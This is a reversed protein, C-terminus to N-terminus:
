GRYHGAAAIREAREADTPLAAFLERLRPSQWDRIPRLPEDDDVTGLAELIAGSGSYGHKVLQYDLVAEMQGAMGPRFRIARRVYVAFGAAWGPHHARAAALAQVTETLDLTPATAAQDDSIDHEVDLMHALEHLGTVEVGPGVGYNLVTQGADLLFGPRGMVEGHAAALAHGTGWSLGLHGPALQRGIVAVGGPFDHRAVTRVIAAVSGLQHDIIAEWDPPGAVGPRDIAPDSSM